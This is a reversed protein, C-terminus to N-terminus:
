KTHPGKVLGLLRDNPKYNICKKSYEKKIVQKGIKVSSPHTRLLTNETTTNKIFCWSYIFYRFLKSYIIRLLEQTSTGWKYYYIIDNDESM